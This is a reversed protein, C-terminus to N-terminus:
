HKIWNLHVERAYVERVAKCMNIQFPGIKNPPVALGWLLLLCRHRPLLHPVAEKEPQMGLEATNCAVM